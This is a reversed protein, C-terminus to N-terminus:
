LYSPKRGSLRQSDHDASRNDSSHNDPSHNDSSNPPESTRTRWERSGSEGSRKAPRNQKTVPRTARPTARRDRDERVQCPM